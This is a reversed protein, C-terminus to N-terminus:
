KTKNNNNYNHGLLDDECRGVETATSRHKFDSDVLSRRFRPFVAWLSWSGLTTHATLTGAPMFPLEWLIFSTASVASSNWCM